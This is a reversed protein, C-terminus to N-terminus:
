TLAPRKDGGKPKMEGKGGKKVPPRNGGGYKEVGLRVGASNGLLQKTTKGTAATGREEQSGEILKQKLVHYYNSGKQAQPCDSVSEYSLNGNYNVSSRNEIAQTV